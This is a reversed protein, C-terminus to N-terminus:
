RAAAAPSTGTGLSEPRRVPLRCLGAAVAPWQSVHEVEGRLGAHHAGSGVAVVVQFFAVVSAGVGLGDDGQGDGCRRGTPVVERRVCRCRLDV